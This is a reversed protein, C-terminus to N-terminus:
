VRYRYTVIREAGAKLAIEWTLWSLPSDTAVAEGLKVTEDDDSQSEVAGRLTKRINLRVDKPQYNKVKLTGEVTVLDYEYGRRRQVNAATRNGAGYSQLAHGHRHHNEFQVLRSVAHVDAHGVLFAQNRFHAHHARQDM